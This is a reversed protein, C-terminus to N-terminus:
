PLELFDVAGQSSLAVFWREVFQLNIIVFINTCIPLFSASLLAFSFDPQSQTFPFISNKNKAREKIHQIKRETWPAKKM